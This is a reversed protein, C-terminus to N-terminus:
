EKLDLWNSIENLFLATELLYFNLSSSIIPKRPSLSVETSSIDQRMESFGSTFLYALNQNKQQNKKQYQNQQM